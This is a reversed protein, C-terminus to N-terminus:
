NYHRQVRPSLDEAQRGVQEALGLNVEDDRRDKGGDHHSRRSAQNPGEAKPLIVLGM